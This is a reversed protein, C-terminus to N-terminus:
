FQVKITKGDIFKGKSISIKLKRNDDSYKLSNTMLNLLISEFYSKNITLREAKEFNM